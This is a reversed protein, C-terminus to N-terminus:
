MTGRWATSSSASCARVPSRGWCFDQKGESWSSLIVLSMTKTICRSFPRKESFMDLASSKAELSDEPQALQEGPITTSNAMSSSVSDSPQKGPARIKEPIDAPSLPEQQSQSSHISGLETQSSCHSSGKLYPRLKPKPTSPVGDHDEMNPGSDSPNDLMKYWLGLDEQVRPVHEAPDQETHLVEQLVKFKRLQTRQKINEQKTMSTVRETSQHEKKPKRVSLNDQDLDPGHVATDRAEKESSLSENEEKSCNHTSKPGAKMTSDEQGIPQSSLSLIWVEAVKHSAEQVSSCLSLVHDGEPAHQVVETMHIASTALTKYGWARRDKRKQLMIQLNNKKGKLCHPHPLSLTLVLDTEVEGSPPLVIERSRLIHKSGHVKAAIVVSMLEKELEKFVVLKKLILSCWRPVYSPSSVDVKRVAFLNMPVPTNLTAPVCALGMSPPSAAAAQTMCTENRNLTPSTEGRAGHAVGTSMHPVQAEQLITAGDTLEQRNRQTSTKASRRTFPWLGRPHPNFWQRCLRSFSECRPRRFGSGRHTPVCCSFM